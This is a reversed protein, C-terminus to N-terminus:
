KHYYSKYWEVFSRVGQDISVKPDYGLLDHAKSIDASTLAVDGKKKPTFKRRAEKGTHKEIIEIFDSLVVTEGRGLNFIEYDFDGEVAKAVGGVIDDIFTFDRRADGKGFIEIEEGELIKKTFIFPAMDPRGWPGYCTFYRLGAMPIGYLSHYSYCIAETAKKTAAYLSIPTDTKDDESFPANDRNGYVSSSSAFIFKKIGFDKACELLNLTGRVNTEEYIFPNDISYRVGAQAAQHCIIDITNEEFVKKLQSFDVIDNRYVPIDLGSLLDKVRAEKLSPDYYDNFNDIIIVNYGRKKLLKATHAGIFGAGGTVLITEKTSATSKM